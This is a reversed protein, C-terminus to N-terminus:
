PRWLRLAVWNQQSTLHCSLQPTLSALSIMWFNRVCSAFITFIWHTKVCSSVNSGSKQSRWVGETGLVNAIQLKLHEVNDGPCEFSDAATSWPCDIWWRCAFFCCKPASTRDQGWFGSIQHPVLTSSAWKM